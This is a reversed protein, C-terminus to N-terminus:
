FFQESYGYPADGLDMDWLEKVDARLIQDADVFIVRKVELRIDFCIFKASNLSPQWCILAAADKSARFCFM